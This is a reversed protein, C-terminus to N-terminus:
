FSDSIRRSENANSVESLQGHTESEDRVMFISLKQHKEGHMRSTFVSVFAASNEINLAPHCYASIPSALTCDSKRDVELELCQRGQRVSRLRAITIVGANGSYGHHVSVGIVFSIQLMVSDPNMEASECRM